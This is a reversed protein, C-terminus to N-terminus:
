KDSLEEYRGHVLMLDGSKTFDLNQESLPMFSKPKDHGSNM